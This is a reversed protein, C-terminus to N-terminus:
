RCVFTALELTGGKKSITATCETVTAPIQHFLQLTGAGGGYGCYVFTPYWHPQAFRWRQTWGSRGGQKTDANEDPALYGAEEPPGHLMGAATLQLAHPMVLRWGAPAAGQVSGPALTPPCSIRHEASRAANSWLLLAGGVAALLSTMPHRRGSM